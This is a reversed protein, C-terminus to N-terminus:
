SPVIIREGKTMLSNTKTSDFNFIELSNIMSQRNHMISNKYSIVSPMNGLGFGKTVDHRQSLISPIFNLEM